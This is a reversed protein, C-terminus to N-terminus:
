LDTLPLATSGIGVQKFTDAAMIVICTRVIGEYIM